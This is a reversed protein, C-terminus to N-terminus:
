LTRIKSNPVAAKPASRTSELLGQRAAESIRDPPALFSVVPVSASLEYLFSPLLPFLTAGLNLWWVRHFSSAPNSLIVREFLEPSKELVKLALCGGFSEGCLYVPVHKPTRTLEDKVLAITVAALLDWDDLDDSPIVLARVNFDEEFSATQLSILDKGTEDLGPLYVLLPADLYGTQFSLFYANTPAGIASAATTQM